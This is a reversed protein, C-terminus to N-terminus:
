LGLGLRRRDEGIEVAQCKEAVCVCGGRERRQAVGVVECPHKEVRRRIGHAFERKKKDGLRACVIWLGLRRPCCEVRQRASCAGRSRVRDHEKERKEPFDAAREEERRSEVYRWFGCGVDAMDHCGHKDVKCVPLRTIIAFGDIERKKDCMGDCMVNFVCLGTLFGKVYAIFVRKKSKM